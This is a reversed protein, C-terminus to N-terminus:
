KGALIKIAVNISKIFAVTDYPASEKGSAKKAVAALAEMMKAEDSKPTEAGTGEERKLRKELAERINRVGTGKKMGLKRKEDKKEESLEKAPMALLAQDKAPYGKVVYAVLSDYFVRDADKGEPARYLTLDTHGDAILSDCATTLKGYSTNLADSYAAINAGTAKSIAKSLTTM